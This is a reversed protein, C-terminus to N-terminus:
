VKEKALHRVITAAEAATLEFVDFDKVECGIIIPDYSGLVASARMAAAAPPSSEGVCVGCEGSAPDPARATTSSFAAFFAASASFFAAALAAKLAPPEGAGVGAAATFAEAEGLAGGGTGAFAM